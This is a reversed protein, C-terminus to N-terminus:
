VTVIANWKTMFQTRRFLWHWIWADSSFVSVEPLRKSSGCTAQAFGFVDHSGCTMHSLRESSAFTYKLWVDNTCFVLPTSILDQFVQAAYNCNAQALLCGINSPVLWHRLGICVYRSGCVWCCFLSNIAAGLMLACIVSGVYIFLYIKFLHRSRMQLHLLCWTLITCKWSFVFMVYCMRHDIFM